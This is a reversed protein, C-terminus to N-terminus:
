WANNRGDFYFDADDILFHDVTMFSTFYDQDSSTYGWYSRYGKENLQRFKRASKDGFAEKVTDYNIEEFDHWRLGKDTSNLIDTVMSKAPYAIKSTPNFGLKKLLYDETLEEKSIILFNTSSSNTVFGMRVLM